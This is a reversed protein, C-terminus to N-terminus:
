SRCPLFIRRGWLPRYIRLPRLNMTLYPVLGLVGIFFVRMEIAHSSKTAMVAWAETVTPWRRTFSKFYGNPISVGIGVKLQCISFAPRPKTCCDYAMVTRSAEPLATQVEPVMREARCNPM